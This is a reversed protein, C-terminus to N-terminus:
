STVTTHHPAHPLSSSSSSSSSSTLRSYVCTYHLRFPSSHNSAGFRQLALPLKDDQYRSQASCVATRLSPVPSISLPTLKVAVWILHSRRQATPATAHVTITTIRLVYTDRSNFRQRELKISHTSIFINLRMIM